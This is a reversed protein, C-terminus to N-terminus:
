PRAPETQAPQTWEEPEPPEIGPGSAVARRRTLREEWALASSVIGELSAHRPQWGLLDRARAADAVVAVPDGPRRGEQRLAFDRGSVRRVCEIVERVSFGDGYGLNAVLSNGGARLYGLALWHAEVLDAVHIFDRICTGDRTPYDTGFVSMAARKGVATECAVKLLHTAGPTSQGTRGAPDAGSVNFYRLAAYRFDHADAADRLMMESMLKSRGYPSAPQLPADEALPTGDSQAYVAATSSYVLNRIGTDIAAELLGRTACTNNEYYGLPDAVSEPVVVSGAFHLIADVKEERLIRRVMMTDAIDGVVLRAAPAVAWAHGTSLRDIVVVREGADVLRWVMHSGIYGAGGTVLVAM